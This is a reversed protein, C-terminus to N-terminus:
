PRHFPYGGELGDSLAAEVFNFRPKRFFGLKQVAWLSGSLGFAAQVGDVCPIM